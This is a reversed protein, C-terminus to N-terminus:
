LDIPDSDTPLYFSFPIVCVTPQSSTAVLETGSIAIGRWSWPTMVRLDM